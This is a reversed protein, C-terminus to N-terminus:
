LRITMPTPRGAPSVSNKPLTAAATRSFESRDSRKTELQNAQALAHEPFTSVPYAARRNIVDRPPILEEHRGSLELCNHKGWMMRLRTPVDGRQSIRRPFPLMLITPSIPSANPTRRNANPITPKTVRIQYGAAAASIATESIKSVAEALRALGQQLIPRPRDNDLYAKRSDLARGPFPPSECRPTM